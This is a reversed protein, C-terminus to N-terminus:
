PAAPPEPVFCISTNWTFGTHESGSRQQYRYIWGGDVPTRELRENDSVSVLEWTM